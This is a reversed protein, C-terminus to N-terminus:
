WYGVLRLAVYGGIAMLAGMLVLELIVLGIIEALDRDVAKGGCLAAADVRWQSM